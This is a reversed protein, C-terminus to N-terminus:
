GPCEPISRAAVGFADVTARFADQIAPRQFGLLDQADISVVAQRAASSWSAARQHGPELADLADLVAILGAKIWSVQGFSLADSRTLREAQFRVEAVQNAIKGACDGAAAMEALSLLAEAAPERADRWKARGLSLVHARTADLGDRVSSWRHPEEARPESEEFPPEGHLALFSADTAARLTALTKPCSVVGETGTRLADFSRALTDVARRYDDRREAPGSASILSKLVAALGEHLYKVPASPGSLALGRAAGRIRQLGTDVAQTRLELADALNAFVTGTAQFNLGPPECGLADVSTALRQLPERAASPKAAGPFEPNANSPPPKVNLTPCPTQACSSLGAIAMAIVGRALSAPTSARNLAERSTYSKRGTCFMRVPRCVVNRTFLNSVIAECSLRPKAVRVRSCGVRTAYPVQRFSSKGVLTATM